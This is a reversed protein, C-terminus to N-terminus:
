AGGLAEREGEVEERVEEVEVEIQQTENDITVSGSVPQAVLCAQRLGERQEETLLRPDITHTVTVKNENTVTGSHDVGRKEVWGAKSSLWFKAAAVCAKNTPDTAVYVLNESIKSTVFAHGEKICAAYHKYITDISVCLGIAIQEVTLGLGGLVGFGWYCLRM